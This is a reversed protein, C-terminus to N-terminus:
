YNAPLVVSLLPRIINTTKGDKSSPDPWTASMKRTLYSMHLDDYVLDRGDIFRSDWESPSAGWSNKIRFFDIKAHDDLAASLAEPRTELLGAKLVGFGPVDHVEYDAILSMHAGGKTSVGLRDLEEATFAGASTRANFDVWWSLVVPQHDHLARQIRQ